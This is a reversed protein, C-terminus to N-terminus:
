AAARRGTLGRRGVSGDTRAEYERLAVGFQWWFLFASVWNGIAMGVATGMVGGILAGALAFASCIAATILVFRLSRKAAGLAHLGTSAGTGVAQGMLYLSMPLVLPYTTHWIPGLLGSGLGRPVAVLLVLGWGLSAATLGVSVLVCFIRLHRPSRRLARAGEPITVLGMGLFLITMPGMLTISAQLYGVAGLGLIVAVGYSRVQNVANSATGELLYRFGLDRHDAVWRWAGSIRPLLRAQFPGVAAAVTGTAGWAFTFWFVDAHSSAKLLLLAPLLTVAWIMDNLFAQAGRGLAFFSYRWSDQLMLGPLTLGLAEFGPAATSSLVKAVALVAAGSLLGVVLATGTCDRTARRWTARDTGSFRVMLPDTSLGRSANLAFGYTVYALSYVGFQVAGLTRVIYIGVAFNTLSSVIQDAIGWSLRRIVHSSLWKLASPRSAPPDGALGGAM